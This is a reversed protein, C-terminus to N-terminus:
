SPVEKKRRRDWKGPSLLADFSTNFPGYFHRRAIESGGARFHPCAAKGQSDIEDFNSGGTEQVKEEKRGNELFFLYVCVFLVPSKSSPQALFPPPSLALVPFSSESVPAPRPLFEADLPSLATELNGKIYIGSQSLIPPSNRSRYVPFTPAM